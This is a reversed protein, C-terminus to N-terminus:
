VHQDLGDYPAGSTSHLWCVLTVPLISKRIAAHVGLPRVEPDDSAIEAGAPAKQM